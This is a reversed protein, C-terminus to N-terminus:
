DYAVKPVSKGGLDDIIVVTVRWFHTIWNYAKILFTIQNTQPSCLIFHLECGDVQELYRKPFRTRFANM